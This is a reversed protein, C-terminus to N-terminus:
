DWGAIGGHATQLWRELVNVPLYHYITHLASKEPFADPEAHAHEALEPVIERDPVAAEVTKEDAHHQPGNQISLTYGDACVAYARNPVCCNLVLAAGPHWCHPARSLFDILTM